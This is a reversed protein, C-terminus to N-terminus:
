NSVLSVLSKMPRHSNNVHCLRQPALIVNLKVQNLMNVIQQAHQLMQVQLKIYRILLLILRKATVMIQIQMFDLPATM